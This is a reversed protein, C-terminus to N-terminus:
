QSRLSALWVIEASLNQIAERRECHRHLLLAAAYQIGRRRPTHCRRQREVADDDACDSGRDGGDHLPHQSPM